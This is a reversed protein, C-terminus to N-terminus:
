INAPVIHGKQFLCAQDKMDNVDMALMLNLSLPGPSVYNNTNDFCNISDNVIDKIIELIDTNM